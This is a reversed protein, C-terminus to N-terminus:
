VDSRAFRGAEAGDGEPWMLEPRSSIQSAARSVCAKKSDLNRLGKAAFVSLLLGRVDAGSRRVGAESTGSPPSRARRM